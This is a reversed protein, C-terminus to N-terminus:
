KHVMLVMQNNRKRISHGGWTEMVESEDEEERPVRTGNWSFQM